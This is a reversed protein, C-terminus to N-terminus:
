LHREILDAIEAFTHPRVLLKQAGAGDNYHSLAYGGIHPNQSPLDAWEAVRLPLDGRRSSGDIIYNGDEDWEGLRSIHCLVGLCCMSGDPQRSEDHGQQYEGSRLAALWQAKIEQNMSYDGEMIRRAM